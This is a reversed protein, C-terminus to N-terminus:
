RGKLVLDTQKMVFVSAAGALHNITQAHESTQPVYGANKGHSVSKDNRSAGVCQFITASGRLMQSTNDHITGSAKLAKLISSSLREVTEKEYGGEGLPLGSARCASHSAPLNRLSPNIRLLIM